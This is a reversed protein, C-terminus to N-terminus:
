ASFNYALINSYFISFSLSLKSFPQGHVQITVNYFTPIKCKRKHKSTRWHIIFSRGMESVGEICRRRDDRYFPMVAVYSRKVRRLNAPSPGVGKCRHSLQRMRTNYSRRERYCGYLPEMSLLRLHYM